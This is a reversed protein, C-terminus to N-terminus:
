FSVQQYRLESEFLHFLLEIQHNNFGWASFFECNIFNKLLRSTRWNKNLYLAKFATVRVVKILYVYFLCWLLVNTFVKM